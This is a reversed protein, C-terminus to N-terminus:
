VLLWRCRLHEAALSGGPDHVALIGATQAAPSVDFLRWGPQMAATPGISLIAPPQAPDVAVEFADLPLNLGLGEGKLLAEKSTWCRFFGQLWADGPCQALAAREHPAFYQQAIEPSVPRFVEVDIGLQYRQSVALLAVDGSHSLNFHVAHSGSGGALHPKGHAGAAFVLSEPAQKCWAALVHRLAAHARVFHATDAPRVFRRARATEEASLVAWHQDLAPADLDIAYVRVGDHSAPEPHQLVPWLFDTM